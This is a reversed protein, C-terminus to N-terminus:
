DRDRGCRKIKKTVPGDHIITTRCHRRHERIVVEDRDQAYHHRWEDRHGTEVGVGVPGAGVYVGDAYAPMALAVGAVTLFGITLKRM